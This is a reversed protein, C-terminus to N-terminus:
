DMFSQFSLHLDLGVTGDINVRVDIETGDGRLARVLVAMRIVGRITGLIVMTLVNGRMLVWGGGGFVLSFCLCEGIFRRM